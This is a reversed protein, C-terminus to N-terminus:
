KKIMWQFAVEVDIGGGMLVVGASTQTTSDITCEGVCYWEWGDGTKNQAHTPTYLLFYVFVCLFFM